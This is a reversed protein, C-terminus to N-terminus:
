YILKKLVLIKLFKSSLLCYATEPATAPNKAVETIEVAKIAPKDDFGISNIAERWMPCSVLLRLYILLFFERPNSVEEFENYRAWTEEIKGGKFISSVYSRWFFSTSDYNALFILVVLLILIKCVWGSKTIFLAV